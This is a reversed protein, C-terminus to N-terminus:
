VHHIANRIRDRLPSPANMPSLRRRIFERMRRHFTLRGDCSPCAELHGRLDTQKTAGLQGDLFFYAIRRVDDCVM